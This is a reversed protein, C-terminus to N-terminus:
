FFDWVDELAEEAQEPLREAFHEVPIMPLDGPAGDPPVFDHDPVRAQSPLDDAARPVPTQPPMDSFRAM